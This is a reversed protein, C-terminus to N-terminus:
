PAPPRRPFFETAALAWLVLVPQFLLRIGRAADTTLGFGDRHEAFQAINGPFIAVFFAATAAGVWRRAPQRWVALLALGLTIEVAGSALVVLDPEVPFWSPVQARFETRAVTLHGLGAGLLFAGLVIQGTVTAVRRISM